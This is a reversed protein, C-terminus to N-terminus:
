DVVKFPDFSFSEKKYSELNKIFQMAYYTPITFIGIILIQFVYDSFILIILKQFPLKSYYLLSIVFSYQIFEGLGSALLVRLVFPNFKLLFRLKVLLYTNLYIGLFMGILAFFTIHPASGLVYIYDSQYAWHSPPPLHSVTFVLISFVACCLVLNFIQKKAVDYGYIEAIIDGILYRFPIVFAAGSFVFEGGFSIMKYGLAVSAISFTVFLAGLTTLFRPSPITKIEYM